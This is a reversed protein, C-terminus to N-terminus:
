GRAASNKRTNLRCETRLERAPTDDDATLRESAIEVREQVVGAEIRVTLPHDGAGAIFAPTHLRSPLM